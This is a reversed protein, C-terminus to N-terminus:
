LALNVYEILLNDFEKKNKIMLTPILVSDDNINCSYRKNEDVIETSFAMNYYSLCNVRGNMAEPVINNYFIGLIDMM